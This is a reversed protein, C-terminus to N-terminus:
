RKGLRRRVTARALGSEQSIQIESMGLAAMGRVWGTLVHEADRVEAGASALSGERLIHQLIAGLAADDDATNADMNMDDRSAIHPQEYYSDAALTFRARQTETLKDLVPGIWDAYTHM